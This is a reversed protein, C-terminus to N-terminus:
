GIRQVTKWLHGEDADEYLRRHYFVSGLSGTFGSCKMQQFLETTSLRSAEPLRHNDAIHKDVIDNHVPPRGNQPEKKYRYGPPKEYTLMKRITSIGVNERASVAIRTNGKLLVLDRVRTWQAFDTYM